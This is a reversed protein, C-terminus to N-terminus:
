TKVEVKRLSRGRGTLGSKVEEKWFNFAPNDRLSYFDEQSKQTVKGLDVDFCISNSRTNSENTLTENSM